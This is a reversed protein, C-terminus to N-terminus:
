FVTTKGEIGGKTLHVRSVEVPTGYPSCALDTAWGGDTHATNKEDGGWRAGMDVGGRGPLPPPPSPSTQPPVYRSPPAPAKLVQRVASSGRGQQDRKKNKWEEKQTAQNSKKLKSEYKINNRTALAKRYSATQREETKERDKDKARGRRMDNRGWERRWDTDSWDKDENSTRHRYIHTKQQKLTTSTRITYKPTYPNTTNRGTLCKICTYTCTIMWWKMTM